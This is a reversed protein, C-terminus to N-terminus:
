HNKYMLGRVDNIYYFASVLGVLATLVAFYISIKFFDYYIGLLIIPFTIAQLATTLKGIFRVQPTPLGKGFVVAALVIPSAIIERTLLLFIQFLQSHSLESSISLKIIASLAVIIMLFRDAVMDFQRGFETKMNFRRAILGDFFDTLMGIVFTIVIWFISFDAFIFFVILFTIIIRSFTLANPVNLINEKPQNQGKEM